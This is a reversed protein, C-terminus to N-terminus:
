GFLIMLVAGTIAVVVPPFRELAFAVFLAAVFLLGFAPRHAAILAALDALM